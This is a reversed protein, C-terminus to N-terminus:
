ISVYEVNNQAALKSQDNEKLWSYSDFGVLIDDFYHYSPCCTDNFTIDYQYM